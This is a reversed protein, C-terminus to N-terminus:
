NLKRIVESNLAFRLLRPLTESVGERGQGEGVEEVAPTDQVRQPVLSLRTHSGCTSAVDTLWDSCNTSHALQVAACCGNVCLVLCFLELLCRSWEALLVVLLEGALFFSFTIGVEEVAMCGTESGVGGGGGGSGVLELGNRLGRLPLGDRTYMCGAVLTHSLTNQSPILNSGPSM